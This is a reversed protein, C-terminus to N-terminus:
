GGTQEDNNAAPPTGYGLKTWFLDFMMKVESRGYLRGALDNLYKSDGELMLEMTDTHKVIEEPTAAPVRHYDALMHLMLRGDQTTLEIM